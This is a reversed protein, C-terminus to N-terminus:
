FESSNSQMKSRLMNLAKQVKMIDKKVNNYGGSSKMSMINAARDLNKQAGNFDKEWSYVKMKPAAENIHKKVVAKFNRLNAGNLRDAFGRDHLIQVLDTFSGKNLKKADKQKKLFQEIDWALVSPISKLGKEASEENLKEEYAKKVTALTPLSDGFKRNNYGPTNSELIKKLKM